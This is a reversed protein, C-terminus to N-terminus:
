HLACHGCAANVGDAVNADNGVCLMLVTCLVVTVAYVVFYECCIYCYCRLLLM